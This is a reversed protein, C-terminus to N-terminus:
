LNRISKRFFVPSDTFTDSGSGFDIYAFSPAESPDVIGSLDVEDDGAGMIAYLRSISSGFGLSLISLSDEGTGGRYSLIGSLFAGDVEVNNEANGMIMNINGGFISGPDLFINNIGGNGARIMVNSGIDAFAGFTVGSTTDSNGLMVTVSSGIITDVVVLDNQSGGSYRFYGGIGNLGDLDAFGDLGERSADIIVNGFIESEDLDDFAGMRFDNVEYGYLNGFLAVTSAGEGLTLIDSGLNSDVRVDGAVILDAFDDADDVGFLILDNGDNTNVSLNGSIEGFFDSFIILNQDSDNALNITVNGGRIDAINLRVDGLATEHGLLNYTVSASPTVTFTATDGGLGEDALTISTGDDTIRLQDEDGTLATLQTVTVRTASANVNWTAPVVRTELQELCLRERQKSSM